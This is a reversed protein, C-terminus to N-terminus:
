SRCLALCDLCDTQTRKILTPFEPLSPDLVDVIKHNVVMEKIWDVLYVHPSSQDECVRGSVLEMILTGFCHIDIKEDLNNPSPVFASVMPSDNHSPIALIIKPNWQYDLLIKSPRIYQHTIRPEIDEHFYALGKAVGQIIKMRKSWTLPLNRGSSGHIWEHLDGKEAYEYVLVREDGEICYGLLRVVNKHRVNAIMEARTIFDYDEYRQYIPFFRKVAVIVTGMLIGRYVMSSDGRAILNEDAFGDTVSEIEMFTFVTFSGFSTTTSSFSRTYYPLHASSWGVQSSIRGSEIYEPCRNYRREKNLPIHSLPLCLKSRLRFPEQRCRRRHFIFCLSVLVIFALLFAISASATILIWLKIGFFSTHQSLKHEILDSRQSSIIRNM